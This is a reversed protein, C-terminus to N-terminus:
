RILEDECFNVRFTITSGPTLRHSGYIVHANTWRWADSGSERNCSNPNQCSTLAQNCRLPLCDTCSQPKIAAAMHLPEGPAGKLLRKVTHAEPSAVTPPSILTTNPTKPPVEQGDQCQCRAGNYGEPCDCRGCRQDGRDCFETGFDLERKVNRLSSIPHYTTNFSLFRHCILSNCAECACNTRFGVKVHGAKENILDGRRNRHKWMLEIVQAGEAKECKKGKKQTLVVKYKVMEMSSLAGQRCQNEMGEVCEPMTELIKMELPTKDINETIIGGNKTQYGLALSFESLKCHKHRRFDEYHWRVDLVIEGQPNWNPILSYAINKEAEEVDQTGMQFYLSSNPSITGEELDESACTLNSLRSRCNKEGSTPQSCWQCDHATCSSCDQLSPCLNAAM